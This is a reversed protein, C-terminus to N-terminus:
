FTVKTQENFVSIWAYNERLVIAINSTVNAKKNFRKRM